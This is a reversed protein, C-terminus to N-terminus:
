KGRQHRRLVFRVPDVAALLRAPVPPTRGLMLATLVEAGLAAHALGRSGMAGLVWLRDSRPIHGLRSMRPLLTVDPDVVRGVHPMRDLAASRLSTRSSAVACSAAEWLPESIIRLRELNSIDEGEDADRSHAHRDDAPPMGTDQGHDIREFSAGVVMQGDIVPTAYGQACIVCPLSRAADVEFSTITGRIANLMLGHRPMLRDMDTANCVVVADFAASAGDSFQLVGEASVTQVRRGLVLRAGALAADALCARVLQAPRVWAAWPWWAILHQAQADMQLVGCRGALRGWGRERALPTLEDIWRLTTACGLETWLTALNRDRSHLPHLIGVPNGSAGSACDAAQDFVTVDCGARSFARACAAGALGAGIVAIADRTVM